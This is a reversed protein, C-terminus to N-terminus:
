SHYPPDYPEHFEVYKQLAQVLGTTVKDQRRHWLIEDATRPFKAFRRLRTLTELEALEGISLEGLSEIRSLQQFRQAKEASWHQTAVAKVTNESGVFSSGFSGLSIEALNSQTVNALAVKFESTVADTAVTFMASNLLANAKISAVNM